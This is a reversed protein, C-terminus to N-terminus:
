PLKAPTHPQVPRLSANVEFVGAAREHGPLCEVEGKAVPPVQDDRMPCAL